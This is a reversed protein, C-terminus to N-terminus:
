AMRIDDQSPAVGLTEYPNAMLRVILNLHQAAARPVGPLVVIGQQKADVGLCPLYNLCLPYIASCDLGM